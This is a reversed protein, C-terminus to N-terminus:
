ENEVSLVDAVRESRFSKALALAPERHAGYGLLLQIIELPEDGPQGGSQITGDISIDVAHELPTMGRITAEVSAGRRLLLEVIETRENEIAAHLPNWVKGIAEIDAGEDLLREVTQLDGDFAANSLDVSISM